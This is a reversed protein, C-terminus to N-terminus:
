RKYYDLAERALRLATEKDILVMAELIRGAKRGAIKRLILVALRNDGSYLNRILVAAQEPEINEYMEIVQRDVVRDDVKKNFAEEREELVKLRELYEGYKRDLEAEWEKLSREYEALRKKEQELRGQERRFETLMDRSVDQGAQARASGAGFMVLYFGGAAAAALVLLMLFSVTKSWM